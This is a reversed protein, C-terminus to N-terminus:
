QDDTLRIDTTTSGAPLENAKLDEALRQAIETAEDMDSAEFSIKKVKTIQITCDYKM